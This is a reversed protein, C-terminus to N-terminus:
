YYNLETQLRSVTAGTHYKISDMGMTVPSMSWTNASWGPILHNWIPPSSALDSKSNILYNIWAANIRQWEKWHATIKKVFLFQSFQAAVQLEATLFMLIIVLILHVSYLWQQNYLALKNTKFVKRCMFTKKKEFIRIHSSFCSWARPM